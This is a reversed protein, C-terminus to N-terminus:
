SALEAWHEDLEAQSLPRAPKSRPDFKGADFVLLTGDRLGAVLSKGEPSFALAVTDANIGDLKALEKGTAMDWVRISQVLVRYEKPVAWCEHTETAVDWRRIYHRGDSSWRDWTFIKRGDESFTARNLEKIASDTLISAEKGAAMDWVRLKKPQFEHERKNGDA